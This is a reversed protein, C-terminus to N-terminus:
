VRILNQRSAVRKKSGGEVLQTSNNSSRGDLYVCTGSCDAGNPPRCNDRPDDVCVQNGPDPCPINAIGGCFPGDLTVCLGPCDAATIPGNCGNPEPDDICTQGKPCPPLWPDFGCINRILKPCPQTLGDTRLGSYKTTPLYVLSLSILSHEGQHTTENRLTKCMLNCESERM